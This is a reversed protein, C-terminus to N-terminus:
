MREFEYWLQGPKGRVNNKNGEACIARADEISVNRRVVTKRAGGNPEWGTAVRRWPRRKFVRYKDSSTM